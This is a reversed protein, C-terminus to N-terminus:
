QFINKIDIVPMDSFDWLANILGIKQYKNLDEQRISCELIQGTSLLFDRQTGALLPTNNTWWQQGDFFLLNATFSDTIFGNKVILIDDADGRKEFLQNLRERNAYKFNYNIHEDHVIKLSNLKRYKHPIFEINEIKSNYIVRCRFLGTKCEDPISILESLSRKITQPFHQKRTRDFRVQHFEINYLKGNKCKITELLHM